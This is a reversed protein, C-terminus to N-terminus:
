FGIIKLNNVILQLERMKIKGDEDKSATKYKKQMKLYSQSRKCDVFSITKFKHFIHWYIDMQDLM